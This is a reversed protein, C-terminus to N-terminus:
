QYDNEPTPWREQEQQQLSTVTASAAADDCMQM